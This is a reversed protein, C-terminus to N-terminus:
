QQVILPVFFLLLSALVLRVNGSEAGDAAALWAEQKVAVLVLMLQWAM